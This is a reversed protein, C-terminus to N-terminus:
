TDQKTKKCLENQAINRIAMAKLLQKYFEIM